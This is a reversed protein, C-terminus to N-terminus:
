TPDLPFPLWDVEDIVDEQCIVKGFMHRCTGCRSQRRCCPKSGCSTRSDSPPSRWTLAQSCAVTCVCMSATLFAKLTARDRQQPSLCCMNQLSVYWWEQLIKPARFPPNYRYRLDVPGQHLFGVPPEVNLHGLRLMLALAPHAYLVFHRFLLCSVVAANPTSPFSSTWKLFSKVATAAKEENKMEFRMGPVASAKLQKPHMAVVVVGVILGWLMEWGDQCWPRTKWCLLSWIRQGRSLPIGCARRNKTANRMSATGINFVKWSFSRAIGSQLFTRRHICM